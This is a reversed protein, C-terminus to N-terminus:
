EEEESPDSYECAIICPNDVLDKCTLAEHCEACSILNEIRVGDFAVRHILEEACGELELRDSLCSKLKACITDAAAGAAIPVEGRACLPEADSGADRSSGSGADRSGTDRLDELLKATSCRADCRGDIIQECSRQSYCNACDEQFFPPTGADGFTAKLEAACEDTDVAGDTCKSLKACVVDEETPQRCRALTTNDKPPEGFRGDGREPKDDVLVGTCAAAVALLSTCLAARAVAM